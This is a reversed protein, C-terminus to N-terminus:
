EPAMYPLTGLFTDPRTWEETDRTRNTEVASVAAQAATEEAVPRDTLVKALGWDMVQVEGFAGVMVNAPKLDRHIVKKSHAYGLTQCVQEFIALWRPLDEAPSKREHLLDVLTRGKILKMAFFPRGDELRGLEHVPPVGPHQLQGTVQAEELFRRELDVHGAFERKIVKIALPRSLEPDHARLVLGMGGEAIKSEICYRGARAPWEPGLAVDPAPPTWADNRTEPWSTKGASPSPSPLVSAFLEQVLGEYGRLRRCYEQVDPRGGAQARYHLDLLLLERLLASRDAEGVANLYEELCPRQGVQWAKEFRDCIEDIRKLATERQQEAEGERSV